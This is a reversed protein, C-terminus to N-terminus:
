QSSPPRLKSLKDDKKEQASTGTEAGLQPPVVVPQNTQVTTEKHSVKQDDAISTVTVEVKPNSPNKLENREGGTSDPSTTGSLPFKQSAPLLGKDASGMIEETLDPFTLYNNLALAALSLGGGSSTVSIGSKLKITIDGNEKYELKGRGLDYNGPPLTFFRPDVSGGKKPPLGNDKIAQNLASSGGTGKIEGGSNPYIAFSGDAHIQCYGAYGEDENPLLYTNTRDAAGLFSSMLLVFVFMLGNLSKYLKRFM